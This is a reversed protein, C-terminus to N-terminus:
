LGMMRASRLSELPAVSVGHPMASGRPRRGKFQKPNYTTSKNRAGKDARALPRYTFPAVICTSKLRIIHGLARRLKADLHARLPCASKAGETRV